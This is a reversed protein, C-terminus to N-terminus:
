QRTFPDVGGASGGARSFTLGWVGNASLFLNNSHFLSLEVRALGSSRSADITITNPHEGDAAVEAQNVRWEYELAADRASRTDAFYPVASFSMESEAIVTNAGLASYYTRGFVPHERYLTLLPEISPIRVSAFGAITGDVTVAEVSITDAGFLYPAEIVASSKGRGSVHSLTGGNRKWTFVINHTPVAAGADFRPIAQLRVSSGASPLARGLYFPPTYSDAEWLLDVVTPTITVSTTAVGGAIEASIHTSVGREGVTLSIETIGEGEAVIRGDVRWIISREGLDYLTSSLTLQVTDGAGPYLPLLEISLAASANPLTLQAEARPAALPVNSAILVCLGFLLLTAAYRTM